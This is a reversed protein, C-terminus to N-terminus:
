LNISSPQIAHFAWLVTNPEFREAIDLMHNRPGVRNRLAFPMDIAEATKEPSVLTVSWCVSRCVVSSSRYCYAFCLLVRVDFGVSYLCVLPRCM